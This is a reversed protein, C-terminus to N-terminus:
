SSATAAREKLKRRAMASVMDAMGMLGQGKGMSVEKGYITFVVDCPLSAVTELPEGSLTQDMIAAWAKASIGQPNEVAFHFKLTGDPLEEPFVYADSECREVHNEVPFPRTAIREPVDEFQDAYEILLEIRESRDVFAFDEVLDKLKPPMEPVDNTM